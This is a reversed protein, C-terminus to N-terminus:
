MSEYKKWLDAWEAGTFYFTGMSFFLGIAAPTDFKPSQEDDDNCLYLQCLSSVPHALQATDSDSTAKHIDLIRQAINLRPLEKNSEIALPFLEVVKRAAEIGDAFLQKAVEHNPNEGLDSEYIFAGMIGRFNTIRTAIVEDNTEITELGKIFDAANIM